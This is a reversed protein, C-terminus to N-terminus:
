LCLLRFFKSCLNSWPYFSQIKLFLIRRQSHSFKVVLDLLIRFSVQQKPSLIDVDIMLATAGIEEKLSIVRKIRGSGWLRHKKTSRDTSVATTRRFYLDM